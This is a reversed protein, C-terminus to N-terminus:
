LCNLRSRKGNVVILHTKPLTLRLLHLMKKVTKYMYIYVSISLVAALQLLKDLCALWSSEGIGVSGVAAVRVGVIVVLLGIREVVVLAFQQPVPCNFISTFHDREYHHM